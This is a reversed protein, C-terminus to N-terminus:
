HTYYESRCPVRTHLPSSRKLVMVQWTMHIVRLEMAYLDLFADIGQKMCGGDHERNSTYDDFVLIGDKKLLPWCLVAQEILDKSDGHVDIYIFDFRQDALQKSKLVSPIHGRAVMIKDNPAKPYKEKFVRLNHSFNKWCPVSKGESPRLFDDVCWIQSKPHTLIHEVTWLASRGEFVGVELAQLPKNDKKKLHPIIIENWRNINNSFWDSTFIYERM